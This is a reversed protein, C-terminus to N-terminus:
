GYAGHQLASVRFRLGNAGEAAALLNEAVLTVTVGNKSVWRSATGSTLGDGAANVPYNEGEAEKDIVGKQALLSFARAANSSDNCIAFTKGESLPTGPVAKGYYVGLPEYHVKCAAFLETKGAYANLYPLHQFYNADYDGGAVADNQMTWDLETIKLTYGKKELEAKVAGRLVEAHPVGSACVYITKDAGRSCGTAALSFCVACLASAFSFLSKLLKNM